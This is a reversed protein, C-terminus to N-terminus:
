EYMETIIKWYLLLVSVLWDGPIIGHRQLIARAKENKVRFKEPMKNFTFWSVSKSPTIGYPVLLGHSERITKEIRIRTRSGQMDMDKKLAKEYGLPSVHFQGFLSGKKLEEPPLSTSVRLWRLVDQNVCLGYGVRSLALSKSKSYSNVAVVRLDQFEKMLGTVTRQTKVVQHRIDPMMVDYIIAKSIGTKSM